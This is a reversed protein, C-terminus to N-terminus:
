LLSLQEPGSPPGNGDRGAVLDLFAREDLVAVGLEGAKRLKSGPSDGVVLYDLKRSVSSVIRGGAKEVLKEAESRPMSLTGTFLVSKGALPGDPPATEEAEMVPWLGIGKLDALLARNGPTDFYQCIAEAVEPGIDPVTQLADYGAEMLADMNRYRSALAKATQEGVHRIGLAGILRALPSSTRATELAALYNDALKEGMRDLSWLDERRLRFLDALTKVLGK